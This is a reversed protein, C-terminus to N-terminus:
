TEIIENVNRNTDSMGYSCTKNFDNRLQTQSKRLCRDKGELKQCKGWQRLAGGSRQSRSGRRRRETSRHKDGRELAWRPEALTRWRRRPSRVSKRSSSPHLDTNVVNGGDPGIQETDLQQEEAYAVPPHDQRPQTRPSSGGAKNDRTPQLLRM